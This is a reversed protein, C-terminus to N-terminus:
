PRKCMLLRQIHKHLCAMLLLTHPFIGSM